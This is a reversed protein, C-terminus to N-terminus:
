YRTLFFYDVTNYFFLYKYMNQSSNIGKQMYVIYVTLCYSSLRWLNSSRVYITGDILEVHIQMIFVLHMHTINKLRSALKNYSFFVLVFLFYIFESILVTSFLELSTFSHICKDNQHVVHVTTLQCVFWLELQGICTSATLSVCKCKFNYIVNELIVSQINLISTTQNFYDYPFVNCTNYM